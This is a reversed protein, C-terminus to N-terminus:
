FLDGAWERMQGIWKRAMGRGRPVFAHQEEQNRLAWQALGCATAYRPQDLVPGDGVLFRPRGLRVPCSFINEAMELLGSLMAAGGTFVIGGAVFDQYGSKHVEMRLLYLMEDIRPQVIEVVDRLPIHRDARGGVSPVPITEGNEVLDLMAVVHELKIAEAHAHPTRLGYSIDVTVHDGGLPLAGSHRVSGDVYIVLDTTGAGIDVLVCGLEKEDKSLVAEASAYPGLVINEVRLGARNVSKILNQAATVGGTVIHVYAELRVGLMGLPDKIGDQADVVFGYPLVHLVDRDLGMPVAKAAEVAQAVDTAAIEKDRRAVGTVGHSNFGRIHGGTIGVTAGEFQVGAAREVQDLATHVAEITRDINVVVGKRLGQSSAEGVGLVKLRGEPGAAAAVACVKSTGIDLGLVVPQRPM